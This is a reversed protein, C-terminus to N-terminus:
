KDIINIDSFIKGYHTLYENSEQKMENFMEESNDNFYFSDYMEIEPNIEYFILGNFQDDSKYVLYPKAKIVNNKQTSFDFFDKSVMKFFLNYSEFICFTFESVTRCFSFKPLVGYEQLLENKISIMEDKISRKLNHHRVSLIQLFDFYYSGDEDVSLPLNGHQSYNRIMLLFRYSFSEDYIKKSFETFIGPLFTDGYCQMAEILTKGASIYNIILSNIAFYENEISLTINSQEIFDAMDINYHNSINNLNFLFVQFLQGIKSIFTTRDVYGILINRDNELLETIHIQNEDLVVDNLLYNFQLNNDM